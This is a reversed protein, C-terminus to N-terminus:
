RRKHISKQHAEAQEEQLSFRAEYERLMQELEQKKTDGADAASTADVSTVEMTVGRLSDAQKALDVITQDIQELLSETEERVEAEENEVERKYQAELADIAANLEEIMTKKDEASIGSLQVRELADELKKKDSVFKEGLRNLRERRELQEEATEYFADYGPAGHKRLNMVRYLERKM